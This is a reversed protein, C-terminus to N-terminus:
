FSFSFFVFSNAEFTAMRGLFVVFHSWLWSNNNNQNIVIYICAKLGSASVKYCVNKMPVRRTLSDEGRWPCKVCKLFHSGMALELQRSDVPSTAPQETHVEVTNCPNMPASLHSFLMFLLGPWTHTNEGPNAIEWPPVTENTATFLAAQNGWKALPREIPCAKLYPRCANVNMTSGAKRVHSSVSSSSLFSFSMFVPFTGTAELHQYTEAAANDWIYGAPSFVSLKDKWIFSFSLIGKLRFWMKSNSGDTVDRYPCASSIM